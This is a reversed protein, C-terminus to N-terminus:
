KDPVEEHLVSKHTMLEELWDARANLLDPGWATGLLTLPTPLGEIAAAAERLLRVARAGKTEAM